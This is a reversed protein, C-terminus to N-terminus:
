DVRAVAEVEVLTEPSALSTIGLATMAPRSEGLFDVLIPAAREVYEGLEGRVYIRISLLQNVSSRAAELTVELNDLAKKLQGEFSAETIQLPQDWAVQGSVFVLKSETDVTAQSMGFVSGDFLTEPNIHLKSM